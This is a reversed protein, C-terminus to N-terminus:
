GARATMIWTRGPLAVGGDPAAFPALAKEVAEVIRPLHEPGAERVLRSLPGLRACSEAAERPSAGLRMPHEFSEAEVDRFGAELLIARVRLQDAFAFPGPAHPDQPPPTLNLAARGAMVPVVAWPNEKAAQWCAFALRGTDKLSRRLHAFAPVPAAFFMVGFRSYLLDRDGPLSASSADAEAFTLNTFGAAKGRQRAVDLMPASVDVGLVEGGPGAAKALSMSTDGCGCGIDVIREGAKVGAAKIAAEGHPGALADMEQQDRAWREGLPGNWERIQESNDGPM